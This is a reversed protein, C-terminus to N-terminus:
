NSHNQPSECFDLIAAIEKTCEGNVLTAWKQRKEQPLALADVVSSLDLQRASQILKAADLESVVSNRIGLNVRAKWILLDQETRKPTDAGKLAELILELNRARAECMMTDLELVARDNDNTVAHTKWVIEMAKTNLVIWARQSKTLREAAIGKLSGKTQTYVKALKPGAEAARTQLTAWSLAALSELAPKAVPSLPRDERNEAAMQVAMGRTRRDVELSQTITNPPMQVVSKLQLAFEDTLSSNTWSVQDAPMVKKVDRFFLDIDKGSSTELSKLFATTFPSNRRGNGDLATQGPSTAFAMYFGPGYGTIEGVSKTKISKGVQAMVAELQSAFPNDRCCDLVLVKTPVKAEELAVMFSDRLQVARNKLQSIGTITPTDVPLLYNDEGVQIGHGSYYFIAAEAGRAASAFREAATAFEERTPDKVAGGGVLTYGMAKLADAVDASDTEPSILQMNSPLNAYKSCGVVLAVRQGALVDCVFMVGLLAISFFRIVLSFSYRRMSCM